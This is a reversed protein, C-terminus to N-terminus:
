RGEGAAAKKQRGLKTALGPLEQAAKPNQRFEIGLDRGLCASRYVSGAFWLLTLTALLLYVRLPLFKARSDIFPLASALAIAAVSSTFLYTSNRRANEHTEIRSRTRPPADKLLWERFERLDDGDINRAKAEKRSAGSPMAKKQMQYGAVRDSVLTQFLWLCAEYSGHAAGLSLAFVGFIFDPHEWSHWAPASYLAQTVLVMAIYCTAVVGRRDLLDAAHGIIEGPDAM